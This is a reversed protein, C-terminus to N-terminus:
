ENKVLEWSGYNSQDPADGPQGWFEVTYPRWYVGESYDLKDVIRGHFGFYVSEENDIIVQDGITLPQM